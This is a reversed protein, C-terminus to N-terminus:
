PSEVEIHISGVTIIDGVSLATPASIVVGNVLTGNTSGLDRLIVRGHELTVEAHRRSAESDAIVLSSSSSRGLTLTGSVALRTSGLRLVFGPNDVSEQRPHTGPSSEDSNLATESPEVTADRLHLDSDVYLTIAIGRGHMASLVESLEIVFQEKIGGDALTRMFPDSIGIRLHTVNSLDSLHRFQSAVRRTVLLPLGTTESEAPM